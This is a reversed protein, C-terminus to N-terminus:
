AAKTEFCRGGLGVRARLQCLGRAAASIVAAIARAQEIRAAQHVEHSRMPTSM